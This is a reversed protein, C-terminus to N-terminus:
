KYISRANELVENKSLLEEATQVGAELLFSTKSAECQAAKQHLELVKILDKHRSEDTLLSKKENISRALDKDISLHRYPM